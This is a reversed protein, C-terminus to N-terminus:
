VWAVLGDPIKYTMYQHLATGGLLSFLFMCAFCM